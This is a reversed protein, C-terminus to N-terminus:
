FSLSLKLIHSMVVQNVYLEFVCISWYRLFQICDPLSIQDTLIIHCTFCKESYIMCLIHHLFQEWVRKQSILISCIELDIAQLRICSTKITHWPSHPSNCYVSVLSWVVPKERMYYLKKSFLFSSTERGSSNNHKIVQGIKM